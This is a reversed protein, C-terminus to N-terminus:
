PRPLVARALVAPDAAPCRADVVMVTLTDTGPGPLILLVGDPVPQAGLVPADAPHDASTLCGSPDTLPGFDPARELLAHVAPVPLPLQPRDVTIHEATLGADGFQPPAPATRGALAVGGLAVASLAAVTGVVAGIHRVSMPRAAHRHSSADPPLVRHNGRLAGVVAATVEPPPAPAPTDALDALESRVQAVTPEDPESPM